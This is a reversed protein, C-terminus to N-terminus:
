DEDREDKDELKILDADKIKLIYVGDEIEYEMCKLKDGAKYLEATCGWLFQNAEQRYDGFVRFSVDQM